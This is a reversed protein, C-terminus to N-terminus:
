SVSKIQAGGTVCSGSVDDAEASSLGRHCQSDTTRYEGEEKPTMPRSRENTGGLLAAWHVLAVYCGVPGASPRTAPNLPCSLVACSRSCCTLGGSGDPNKDSQRWTQAPIACYGCVLSYTLPMCSLAIM